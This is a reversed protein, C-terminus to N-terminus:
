AGGDRYGKVIRRARQADAARVRMEFPRWVTPGLGGAGAGLPVLASPIGNSRLLGAVMVAETESEFTAVTVEGVAM